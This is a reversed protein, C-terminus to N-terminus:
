LGNRWEDYAELVERDSFGLQYWMIHDNKEDYIAAMIADARILGRRLDRRVAFLVDDASEWPQKEFQWDGAQPGEPAPVPKKKLPFAIVKGAPPKDVRNRGGFLWAM